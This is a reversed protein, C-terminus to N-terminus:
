RPLFLLCKGICRFLVIGSIELEVNIKNMVVGLLVLASFDNKTKRVLFYPVNQFATEHVHHLLDTRKQKWLLRGTMM